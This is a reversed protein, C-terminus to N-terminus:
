RTTPCDIVTKDEGICLVKDYNRLIQAKIEVEHPIKIDSAFFLAEFEGSEKFKIASPKLSYKKSKLSVTVEDKVSAISPSGNEFLVVATKKTQDTFATYVEGKQTKVKLSQNEGLTFFRLKGSKHFAVKSSPELFAKNEEGLKVFSDDSVKDVFLPKGEENLEFRSGYRVNVEATDSKFWIQQMSECGQKYRGNLYFSTLRSRIGNPGEYNRCNLLIVRKDPLIYNVLGVNSALVIKGDQQWYLDALEFTNGDAFDFSVPSAFTGSLVEQTEADRKVDKVEINERGHLTVLISQEMSEKLSDEFIKAFSYSENAYLNIGLPLALFASSLFLSKLANKM